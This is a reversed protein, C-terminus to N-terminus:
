LLQSKALIQCMDLLRNAYGWENDYWAFIKIQEGASLNAQGTSMTQLSDIVLSEAQHIFDSSVLPEDSYGMIGALETQSKQQLLANVQEVTVAHKLVLTVDIAAVDLTPVRLSHGALRGQM